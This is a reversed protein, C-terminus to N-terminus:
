AFVFCVCMEHMHWLCILGPPWAFWELRLNSKWKEKCGLSGEAQALLAPVIPLPVVSAEQAKTLSRIALSLVQSDSWKRALEM